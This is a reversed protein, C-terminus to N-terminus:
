SESGTEVWMRTPAKNAEWEHQQEVDDFEGRKNGQTNGKTQVKEQIGDPTVM